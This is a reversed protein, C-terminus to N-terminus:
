DDDDDDDDHARRKHLRGEEGVLKSV